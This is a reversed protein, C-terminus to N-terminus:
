KKKTIEKKTTEIQLVERKKKAQEALLGWSPHITRYHRDLFLQSIFMKMCYKCMLTNDM